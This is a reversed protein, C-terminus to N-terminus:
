RSKSGTYLKQRMQLLCVLPAMLGEPIIIGWSTNLFLSNCSRYHTITEATQKKWKSINSSVNAAHITLLVAKKPFHSYLMSLIWFRGSHFPLTSPEGTLTSCLGMLPTGNKTLRKLPVWLWNRM